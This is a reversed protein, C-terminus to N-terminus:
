KALARLQDALDEAVCKAYDFTRYTELPFADDNEGRLGRSREFAVHGPSLDWAHGLDFGLWWVDAPMGPEPEHCIRGSCEGAYNLAYGHAGANVQDPRKGYAPHSRDVGVYGCFCGQRPHRLILCAYGAHQFQARDPETQWPGDGWDSKDIAEELVKESM